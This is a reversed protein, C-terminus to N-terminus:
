CESIYFVNVDKKVGFGLHLSPRSGATGIMWPSGLRRASIKPNAWPQGLHM